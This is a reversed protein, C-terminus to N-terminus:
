DEEIMDVIYVYNLKGTISHTKHDYWKLARMINYQMTRINQATHELKKFDLIDLINDFEYLLTDDDSDYVSILYKGRYYKHKNTKSM